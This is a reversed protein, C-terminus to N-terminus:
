RCAALPRAELRQANHMLRRRAGCVSPETLGRLVFWGAGGWGASAAPPQATALTSSVRPHPPPPPACLPRLGLRTSGSPFDPSPHPFHRPNPRKSDGRGASAGLKAGPQGEKPLQGAGSVESGSKTPAWLYEPVPWRRTEMQQATSGKPGSRPAPPAKRIGGTGPTSDAFPNRTTRTRPTGRGGHLSAASFVDRASLRRAPDALSSNTNEAGEGRPEWESGGAPDFM